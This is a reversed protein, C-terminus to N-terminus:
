RLVLSTASANKEREKSLTRLPSQLRRHAIRSAMSNDWSGAGAQSSTVYSTDVDDIGFPAKSNSCAFRQQRQFGVTEALQSAPVFEVKGVDATVAPQPQPTRKLLSRTAATTSAIDKTSQSTYDVKGLGDIPDTGYPKGKNFLMGEMAHVALGGALAMEEGEEHQLPEGVNYEPRLLDQQRIHDRAAEERLWAFEDVHEKQPPNSPTEVYGEGSLADTVDPSGWNRDAQMVEEATDVDAILGGHYDNLNRMARGAAGQASNGPVAKDSRAGSFEGWQLVSKIDTSDLDNREREKRQGGESAAVYSSVCADHGLRSRPAGAARMYNAPYANANVERKPDLLAGALQGPPENARVGPLEGNRGWGMRDLRSPFSTTEITAQPMGARGANMEQFAADQKGRADETLLKHPILEDGQEIQQPVDRLARAGYQVDKPAGAAGRFVEYKSLDGLDKGELDHGFVVSDVETINSYPTEKTLPKVRRVVDATNAFYQKDSSLGAANAFDPETVYQQSRVAHALQRRRHNDRDGYLTGDSQGIGIVERHHDPDPGSFLAADISGHQHESALVPPLQRAGEFAESPALDEELCDAPKMSQKRPITIGRDHVGSEAGSAGSFTPDARWDGTQQPRQFTQDTSSASQQTATRKRVRSDSEAFASQPMHCLRNYEASTSGHAGEFLPDTKFISSTCEGGEGASGDVDRGFVVSDVSSANKLAAFRSELVEPELKNADVESSSVGAAGTFQPLKMLNAELDKISTFGDTDHGFVISDVLSNSISQDGVKAKRGTPDENDRIESADDGQEHGFVIVDVSSENSKGKMKKAGGAKPPQPYALRGGVPQWHWHSADYEAKSRAHAESLVERHADGVFAGKHRIIESLSRVEGDLWRESTPMKGTVNTERGGQDSM